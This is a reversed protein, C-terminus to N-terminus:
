ACMYMKDKMEDCEVRAKLLIGAKLVEPPEYKNAILEMTGAMKGNFVQSEEKRDFSTALLHASVRSQPYPATSEHSHRASDSDACQEAEQPTSTNLVANKVLERDFFTAAAQISRHGRSRTAQPEPVPAPTSGPTSVGSEREM